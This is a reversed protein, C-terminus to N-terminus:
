RTLKPLEGPSGAAEAASPPSPAHSFAGGGGRAGGGRAGGGGTAGAVTAKGGTEPAADGQPSEGGQAELWGNPELAEVMVGREVGLACKCAIM